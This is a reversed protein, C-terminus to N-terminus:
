YTYLYAIEEFWHELDLVEFEVHREIEEELDLVEWEVREMTGKESEEGGRYGFIHL